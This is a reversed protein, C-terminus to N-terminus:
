ARHDQKKDFESVKSFILAIFFIQSIAGSIGVVSVLFNPEKLIVVVALMLLLRVFTTVFTFKLHFQQANVFPVIKISPNSILKFYMWVSLWRAYSGAEEWEGGFVLEFLPPGFLILILFPFSAVASLGLTTRIFLHRLPSSVHAARAIRSLFVDGVSNGILNTPVGIVSQSLSYFGAFVPGAYTALLLIPLSESLANIFMQPARYVPFDSYRSAVARLRKWDMYRKATESARWLQSTVPLVLLFSHVVTALIVAMVLIEGSPSIVGAAVKFLGVIAAQLTAARAVYSFYSNRILGQQAVQLVAGTFVALPILLFFNEKNGYGLFRWIYDGFSLFCIFLLLSFVFASFFSVVAVLVAQCNRRPVVIAGPYCGAAIPTLLAIVAIFAGLVGFADPGYLRTLVPSLAVNIVQAGATGSAVLM